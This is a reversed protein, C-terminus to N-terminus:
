VILMSVLKLLEKIKELNNKKVAYILSDNM